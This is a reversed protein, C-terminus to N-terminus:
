EWQLLLRNDDLLEVQTGFQRGERNLVDLLWRTDIKNARNVRFKKIQTPTMLLRQLNGSSPTVSAFYMLSLDDRYADYGSIGEYDNLFDGSGYIILKNNYVEIGKVHHSSHGHIVDVGAEDILQHAFGTYSPSIEYGWNGGWHISLVIVDGPQEYKKIKEKIGHVTEVSLDRLINIGPQDESAAWSFPIGCTADGYSFVLVRGKGKIPMIAPKEAERLTNGAGSYKIHSNKLTRLTEQLGAYGWDLVHNNAVACYDIKAASLCPINEPNMRYHIGKFKWYDNSKTISTELNIIRVDPVRLELEELADGWVYSFDVPYPISGNAREAIKVYGKASKMYEEFLMPDGPHPLIQDIGRGLMVDGCMFLMISNSTKQPVANTQALM